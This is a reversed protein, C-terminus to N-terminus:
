KRKAGKGRKEVIEFTLQDRQAEIDGVRHIELQSRSNELICTIRGNWMRLLTLEKADEPFLSIQFKEPLDDGGPSKYEGLTHSDYYRVKM